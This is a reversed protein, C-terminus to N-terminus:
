HLKKKTIFVSGNAIYQKSKYLSTGFYVEEFGNETIIKELFKYILHHQFKDINLGKFTTEPIILVKNKAKLNRTKKLIYFALDKGYLSDSVKENNFTIFTKDRLTRDNESKKVIFYNISFISPLLFLLLVSILYYRRKKHNIVCYLFYCITLFWLSGGLVGTYNYWQVLNVNTSFLNGLTLWPFSISSLNHFVEYLLWIPIFFFLKFQKM